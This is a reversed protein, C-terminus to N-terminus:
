AGNRRPKAVIQRQGFQRIKITVNQFEMHCRGHKDVLWAERHVNVMKEILHASLQHRLGARLPNRSRLQVPKTFTYQFLGVTLDFADTRTQVLASRVPEM